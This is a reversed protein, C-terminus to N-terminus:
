IRLFGASDGSNNLAMHDFSRSRGEEIVLPRLNIREPLWSPASRFSVKTAWIPDHSAGGFTPSDRKSARFSRLFARNMTVRGM